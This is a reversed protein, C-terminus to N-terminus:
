RLEGLAPLDGALYEAVIMQADEGDHISVCTDQLLLRTGIVDLADFHPFEVVFSLINADNTM